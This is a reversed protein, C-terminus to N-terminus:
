LGFVRVFVPATIASAVATAALAAPMGGRRAFPYTVVGIVLYLLAFTLALWWETHVDSSLVWNGLLLPMMSASVVISQFSLAPLAVALILGIYTFLGIRARQQVVALYLITAAATAGTSIVGAFSALYWSGEAQDPTGFPLLPYTIWGLCSAVLAFALWPLAKPTLLYKTSM